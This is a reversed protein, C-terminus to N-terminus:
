EVWDHEVREKACGPVYRDTLFLLINNLCRKMFTRVHQQQYFPTLISICYFCHPRKVTVYMRFCIQGIMTTEQTTGGIMLGVCLVDVWTDVFGSGHKHLQLCTVWLRLIVAVSLLKEM